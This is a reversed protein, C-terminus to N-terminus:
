YINFQLSTMFSVRTCDIFSDNIIKVDYRLFLPPPQIFLDTKNQIAYRWYNVLTLTRLNM